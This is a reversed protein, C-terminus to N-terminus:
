TWQGFVSLTRCANCAFHYQFGSENNIPVYPDFGSSSALAAVFVMEDRCLRCRVRRPSQVWCPAGGVQTHQWDGLEDDGPPSVRALRVPRGSFNEVRARRECAQFAGNVGLLQVVRGNVGFDRRFMWDVCDACTLLPLHSWRPLRDRLSPIERADFVFVARMRRGCRCDPLVLQDGGFTHPSPEDSLVVREGPSARWDLWSRDRSPLAPSQWRLLQEESALTSLSLAMSTTPDLPEHLCSERLARLMEEHAGIAGLAFAYHAWAFSSDDYVHIVARMRNVAESARGAAVLDAALGCSELLADAGFQDLTDLAEDIRGARALARLYRAEPAFPGIRRSKELSAGKVLYTRYADLGLTDDAHDFAWHALYRCGQVPLEDISESRTRGREREIALWVRWVDSTGHLMAAVSYRSAALALDDLVHASSGRRPPLPHAEILAVLERSRETM